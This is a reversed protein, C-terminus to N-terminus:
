QISCGIYKRALPLKDTSIITWCQRKEPWVVSFWWSVWCELFRWVMFVSCSNKSFRVIESTDLGFVTERRSNHFNDFRCNWSYYILFHFIFYISYLSESNDNFMDWGYCNGFKVGFLLGVGVGFYKFFEFFIHVGM